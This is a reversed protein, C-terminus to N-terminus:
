KGRSWEGRQCTKRESLLSLLTATGGKVMVVKLLARRSSLPLGVKLM